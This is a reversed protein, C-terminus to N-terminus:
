VWYDRDTRTRKQLFTCLSASATNLAADDAQPSRMVRLWNQLRSEFDCMQVYDLWYFEPFVHAPANMCVTEEALKRFESDHFRTTWGPFVVSIRSDFFEPFQAAMKKAADGDGRPRLLVHEVIHLGESAANLDTLERSIYRACAQAKDYDPATALRWPRENKHRKFCVAVREDEEPILIYSAIDTGKRVLSEGIAVDNLLHAPEEAPNEKAPMDDSRVVPMAAASEEMVRVSREFIRDPLLRLKRQQLVGSLWRFCGIERLGLLVGVKRQLGAINGTDWAPRLYDFGTARRASIDVINKLFELKKEILWKPRDAEKEYSFRRLSKQTFEEGYVALMYDLARSRRSFFNDHQQQIAAIEAETKEKNRAYLKEINPLSDDDIYQSFYSQDLGDDLSYLRRMEQLGQLYNAMLQEPLYLYAKLQNAEAKRKAPASDPVGHRNIAYIAPFHHQISHYEALDRYQGEPLPLFQAFTQRSHRFARFGFQLQTLEDRAESLLNAQKEKQMLHAETDDPGIEAGANRGFVLQLFDQESSGPFQLRPCVAATADFSLSEVAQGDANALGLEHVQRVGEIQQILGILDVLTVTRQSSFIRESDIYGHRTLPGLFLQELSPNHAFVDEYRYVYFGSAICRECAFFIRAYVEAPNCFGELEIEGTLFYPRTEIIAVEELDEGLNRHANFTERIHQQVQARLEATATQAFTEDLMVRLAYLGHPKGNEAAVRELWLDDIQPVADYIIKRYDKETVPEVPLIEEPKFLAQAAYDIRGNPEALYDQPAFDSRYALDTLGYCLQELVTVGPDHLNYDTWTKGCLQQLLAIGTARLADFDLGDPDVQHRNIHGASSM